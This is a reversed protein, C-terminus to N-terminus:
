FLLLLRALLPQVQASYFDRQNSLDYKVEATYQELFPLFQVENDCPFVMRERANLFINIYHDLMATLASSEYLRLLSDTKDLFLNLLVIAEKKLLFNLEPIVGRHSYIDPLALVRLLSEVNISDRTKYKLSSGSYELYRLLVGLLRM